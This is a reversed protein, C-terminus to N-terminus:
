AYRKKLDNLSYIDPEDKLFDFSTSYANINTIDSLLSNYHMPFKILLAEYDNHRGIAVVEGTERVSSILKGLDKRANTASITKMDFTYMKYLLFDFYWSLPQNHIVTNKTAPM